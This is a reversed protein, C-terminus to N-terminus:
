IEECCPLSALNTSENMFPEGCTHLVLLKILKTGVVYMSSLDIRIEGGSRKMWGKRREKGVRWSGGVELHTKEVRTGGEAGDGRGGKEDGRVRGV